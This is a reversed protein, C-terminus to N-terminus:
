FLLSLGPDTLITAVDALFRSAQEGDLVRHDITLTLKAVSRIEM